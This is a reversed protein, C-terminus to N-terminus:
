SRKKKLILAGSGAVAAAAFPWVAVAIGTKVDDSKGDDTKGDDKKGDDTKGDDTKGDDTKGDDPKEPDTKGDDPKEPDTKGDDPKDPDEPEDMPVIIEEGTVLNWFKTSDTAVGNTRVLRLNRFETDCDKTKSDSQIAIYYFPDDEAKAVGKMASVVNVNWEDDTLAAHYVTDYSGTIWDGGGKREERMHVTYESSQGRWEYILALYEGEKLKFGNLTFPYSSFGTYQLNEPNLKIYNYGDAQNITGVDSAKKIRPMDDATALWSWYRLGESFDLNQPGNIKEWGNNIVNRGEPIGDEFTGYPDNVTIEKGTKLDWFKSSDENTKVVRINKIEMTSPTDKNTEQIYVVYKNRLDDKTVTLKAQKDDENSMNVATNWGDATVAKILDKSVNSTAWGEKIKGNAERVHLRVDNKEGRWDFLVAIRDGNQLHSDLYFPYCVLGQNEGNKGNMKIYNYDKEEHLSVVTSAYDAKAGAADINTWYRLGESFDLNMPDELPDYNNQIQGRGVNMGKEKTGYNDGEASALLGMSCLATVIMTLSLAISLIKKM